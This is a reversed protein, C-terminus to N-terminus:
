RDLLPGTDLIYLSSEFVSLLFFFFLCGIWNLFLCFVQVSEKGFLVYLHCILIHFTTENNADPFHLNFGQCSVMGCKNCHNFYLISVIGLAQSSTSCCSGEYKNQQYSHSITGGTQFVTQCNRM